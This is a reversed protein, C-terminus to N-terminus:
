ASGASGEAWISKRMHAALALATRPEPVGALATLEPGVDAELEDLLADIAERRATSVRDRAEPPLRGEIWGAVQWALAAHSLEDEAIQAFVERVAPHSAARAQWFSVLAGYTERVCGEIANEVAVTELDRLPMPSVRVPEPEAGFARALRSVMRAHTVEERAARRAGDLLSRPAGHMALERRLRRFAGVSAAELRAAETWYRAATSSSAYPAAPLLGPPRRGVACNPSPKREVTTDVVSVNGAEDVQQIFRTIGAPGCGPRQFAQVQFGDAEPKAGGRDCAVDFGLAQVLLMAEAESDIPALFAALEANTTALVAAGTQTAKLQAECPHDQCFGFRFGRESQLAVFEGECRAVDPAGGCLTGQNEILTGFSRLETYETPVSPTLGVLWRQAGSSCDVAVFGPDGEIGPPIEKEGGCGAMAVPTCVVFVSTLAANFIERLDARVNKM